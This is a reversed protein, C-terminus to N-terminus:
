QKVTSMYTNLFEGMRYCETGVFQASKIPHKIPCVAIVVKNEVVIIIQLVTRNHLHTPVISYVIELSGPTM